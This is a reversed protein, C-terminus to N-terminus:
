MSVIACLHVKNVDHLRKTDHANNDKNNFLWWQRHFGAQRSEHKRILYHILTKNLRETVNAPKRGRERQSTGHKGKSTIAVPALYFM